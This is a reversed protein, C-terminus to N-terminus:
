DQSKIAIYHNSIGFTQEKHQVFDFGAEKLEQIFNEPSPFAKISDALYTYMEENKTFYKVIKPMVKTLYFNYVNSIIPKTVPSFELICLQGGVCLVRHMEKLAKARNEVNRIGYAITVADFTNNEFPIEEANIVQTKIRTIQDNKLKTKGFELMEEAIDGAVIEINKHKKALAISVDLTGAAMDLIKFTKGLIIRDVLCYRWYFDVCFSLIHNLKDYEKSISNFKTM